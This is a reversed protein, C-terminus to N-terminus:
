KKRNIDAVAYNLRKIFEDIWIRDADQLARALREDDWDSMITKAPRPTPLRTQPTTM